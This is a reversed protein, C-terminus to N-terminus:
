RKKDFFEKIESLYLEVTAKRIEFNDSAEDFADELKERLDDKADTLAAKLKERHRRMKTYDLYMESAASILIEGGDTLDRKHTKKESTIKEYEKWIPVDLDKDSETKDMLYVNDAYTDLPFIDLVASLLEPVGSGDARLIVAGSQRAISEGPFNGDSFVIEDGHGMKALAMLLEPSIIKNIGKLM